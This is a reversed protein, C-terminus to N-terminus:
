KYGTVTFWKDAHIFPAGCLAGYYVHVKSTHGAVAVEYHALPTMGTQRLGRIGM